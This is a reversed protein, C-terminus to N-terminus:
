NITDFSDPFAVLRRLVFTCHFRHYGGPEAAREYVWGDRYLYGVTSHTDVVGSPAM